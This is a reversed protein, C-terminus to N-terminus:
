SEQIYLASKGSIGKIGDRIGLLICKRQQKRDKCFFGFYIFTFCFKLINSVKWAAPIYARKQLLISNRALYYHRAPSRYPMSKKGFFWYYCVDDGMHHTLRTGTTAFLKFGKARARFCWDTEVHDIFLSSDFEGILRFAQTSMLTGSSNLGDVEVAPHNDSIREPKIKGPFFLKTKHFKLLSNDRPDYLVPGVAAVPTGQDELSEFTTELCSIMGGPPISDHDLTLIYKAATNNETIHRIATNQAHAIGMNEHLKILEVSDTNQVLQVLSTLTSQSSGNDIIVVPCQAALPALIKRLVNFDPNFSVIVAVTSTSIAPSM